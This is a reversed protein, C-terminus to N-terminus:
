VMACPLRSDTSLCHLPARRLALSSPYGTLTPWRMRDPHATSRMSARHLSTSGVRWTGAWRGSRTSGCCRCAHRGEITGSAVAHLAQIPLLTAQRSPTSWMQSTTSTSSATSCLLLQLAGTAAAPEMAAPRGLATKVSQFTMWSQLNTSMRQWQWLGTRSVGCHSHLARDPLTLETCVQM